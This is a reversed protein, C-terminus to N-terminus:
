GCSRAPSRRPTRALPGDTADGTGTYLMGDLGFELAGGDPYVVGPIGTVFPEHPGFAAGDFPM